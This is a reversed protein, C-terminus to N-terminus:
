IIITMMIRNYFSFTPKGSDVANGDAAHCGVACTGGQVSVSIGCYASAEPAPASIQSSYSWLGGVLKFVYVV